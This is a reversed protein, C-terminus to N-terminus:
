KAAAHEHRGDPRRTSETVKLSNCADLPHHPRHQLRLSRSRGRWSLPIRTFEVTLVIMNQATIMAQTISRKVMHDFFLPM